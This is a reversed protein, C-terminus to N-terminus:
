EIEKYEHRKRDSLRKYIEIVVVIVLMGLLIAITNKILVNDILIGWQTMTIFSTALMMLIIYIVSAWTKQKNNHKFPKLIFDYGIAFVLLYTNIGTNIKPYFAKSYLKLFIVTIVLMFLMSMISRQFYHLGSYITSKDKTYEEIISKCFVEYDEIISDPSKHEAQSQLIMDMIQHLVEEKEFYKLNSNKIYETIKNFLGLNIKHLKKQERIRIARLRLWYLM